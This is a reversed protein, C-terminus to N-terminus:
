SITNPYMSDPLDKLNAKDPIESSVDSTNDQHNGHSSSQEDIDKEMSPEM